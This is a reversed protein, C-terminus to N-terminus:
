PAKIVICQGTPLSIPVEIKNAYYEDVALKAAYKYKPFGYDDFVMVGGAHMRPFFFKCCDLVSRYLDVDIHVFSFKLHSVTRFSEPILGPHFAVFPFSALFEQVSALSTDWLEGARHGSPDEDAFDPMGTFTDFLHLQKPSGKSLAGAILRATGGKYVGCEAFEGELYLCHHCLQYLIYCRDEMVVTRDRIEGYIEQFWAEFWPSYTAYGYPHNVTYAGLQRHTQVVEYGLNRVLKRFTDKLLRKM